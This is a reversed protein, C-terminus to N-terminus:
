GYEVVQTVKCVSLYICVMLFVVEKTSTIIFNVEAHWRVTQLECISVPKVGIVTM